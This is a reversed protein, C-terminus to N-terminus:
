ERVQEERATVQWGGGPDGIRASDPVVVRVEDLFVENFHAGGNMERLPRVTIGPLDMDLAFM